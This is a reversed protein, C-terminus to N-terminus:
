FLKTFLWDIFFWLGTVIGGVLVLLGFIALYFLCGIGDIKFGNM